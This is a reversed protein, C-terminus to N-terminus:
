LDFAAPSQVHLVGKLWLSWMWLYSSLCLCTGVYKALFVLRRVRLTYNPMWSDKGQLQLRINNNLNISEKIHYDQKREWVTLGWMSKEGMLFALLPFSNKRQLTKLHICCPDSRGTPTVTLTAWDSAFQSYSRGTHWHYGQATHNESQPSIVGNSLFPRPELLCLILGNAQIKRFPSLETALKSKCIIIKIYLARKWNWLLLYCHSKLKLCGILM